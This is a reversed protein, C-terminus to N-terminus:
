NTKKWKYEKIFAYQSLKRLVKPIFYFRKKVLVMLIKQLFELRNGKIYKIICKLTDQKKLIPVGHEFNGFNMKQREDMFNMQYMREKHIDLCFLGHMIMLSHHFLSDDGFTIEQEIQNIENFMDIIRDQMPQVFKYLELEPVTANELIPKGDKYSLCSGHDAYLVRELMRYNISYVEFNNTRCPLDSFVIGKKRNHENIYVDGCLGYYYGMVSLKRDYILYINDQISGKWGIDVIALSRDVGMDSFYKKIQQKACLRKKDYIEIFNKNKCVSLFLESDFFNNIKSDIDYESFISTTEILSDLNLNKLFDRLSLTTYQNRLLTFQEKEITNLSPLYTAQRSVYLYMVAMHQEGVFSLYKEFMAKLAKGERSFFFVNKINSSKLEQYLKQCFYYLSFGYNCYPLKLNNNERYISRLKKVYEDIISNVGKDCQYLVASINNKVPIKYDSHLNDGIMIVEKVDCSLEDLIYKYLNGTSKRKGEDSSVYINEFFRDIKKRVFIEKVANQPLYFDSVCYIKKGAIHEKEIFRIIELNVATMDTEIDIMTELAKHYFKEVTVAIDKIMYVRQYFEKCSEEFTCEDKGKSIRKMREVSDHWVINLDENGIGLYRSIEKIWRDIVMKASCKRLLVTNFCDILIIKKTSTKKEIKKIM